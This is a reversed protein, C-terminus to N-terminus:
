QSFFREAVFLLVLMLTNWVSHAVIPVILSRSNEYFYALVAGGATIPLLRYLDLHLSAFFLGSVLMGGLLGFRSRALPYVMGRFYLEESIPAFIGVAIFPMWLDRISKMGSLLREVEQPPPPGAILTILIGGAWIVCTLVLGGTFGEIINKPLNDWILGLDRATASKRRALILVGAIIVVAQIFTGVLLVTYQVNNGSAGMSEVGRVIVARLLKSVPMLCFLVILVLIADWWSWKPKMLM